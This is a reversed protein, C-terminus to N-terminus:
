LMCVSLMDILLDNADLFKNVFEIQHGFDKLDTHSLICVIGYRGAESHCHGRHRFKVRTGACLAEQLKCRFLLLLSRTAM